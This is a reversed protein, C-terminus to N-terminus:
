DLFAYQYILETLFHELSGQSITLKSHQYSLQLTITHKSCFTQKHNPAVEPSPYGIYLTGELNVSVWGNNVNKKEYFGITFDSCSPEVDNGASENFFLREIYSTTSSVSTTHIIKKVLERKISNM